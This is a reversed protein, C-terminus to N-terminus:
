PLYQNKLAKIAKQIFKRMRRKEDPDCSHAWEIFDAIAHIRPDSFDDSRISGAHDRYYTLPEDVGCFVASTALRLWTAYDEVARLRASTAYLTESSFLERKVIVSSNLLWNTALLESFSLKKPFDKHFIEDTFGSKVIWGNSYVLDANSLKAAKIQKEIKEPAWYDDSDLFAIWEADSANIGIQRGIGPLGTHDNLIIRLRPFSVRLETLYAIFTESSGDDVIIVENVPHTQSFCSNLAELLFEQSNYTPIIVDVTARNLNM